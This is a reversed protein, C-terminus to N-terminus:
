RTPRRTRGPIRTWAWDRPQGPPTKGPTSGSVCKSSGASDSGAGCPRPPRCRCHGRCTPSPGSCRTPASPAPESLLAVLPRLFTDLVPDPGMLALWRDAEVPRGLLACALSSAGIAQQVLRERRATNHSTQGLELAQLGVSVAAEYRGHDLALSQQFLLIELRGLPDNRSADARQALQRLLEPVEAPLGDAVRWATVLRDLWARRATRRRAALWLPWWGPLLLLRLLWSAEHWTAHGSWCGLRALRSAIPSALRFRHFTATPRFLDGGQGDPPWLGERLVFWGFGLCLTLCIGGPWLAAWVLVALSAALLDEPEDPLPRHRWRATTQRVAGFALVAAAVGYAVPASLTEDRGAALWEYLRAAVYCAALWGPQVRGYPDRALPWATATLAAACALGHGRVAFWVTAAAWPLAWAVPLMRAFPSMLANALRRRPPRCTAVQTGAHYSGPEMVLLSTGMLLWVNKPSTISRSAQSGIWSRRAIAMRM